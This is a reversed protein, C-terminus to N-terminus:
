PFKSHHHHHNLKEVEEVLRLLFDTFIYHPIRVSGFDSFCMGSGKETRYGSINEGATLDERNVHKCMVEWKDPLESSKSKEPILFIGEFLFFDRSRAAAFGCVKQGRNYLNGKSDHTISSYGGGKGDICRIVNKLVEGVEEFVRKITKRTQLTFAFCMDHMPYHFAIGGGSVRAFASFKFSNEIDKLNKRQHRGVSVCPYSLSFVKVFQVGERFFRENEQFTKSPDARLDAIILM